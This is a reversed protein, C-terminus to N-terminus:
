AVTGNITSKQIAHLFDNRPKFFFAFIARPGSQLAGVPQVRGMSWVKGGEPTPGVHRGIHLRGTDM